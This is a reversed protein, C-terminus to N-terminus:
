EKSLASDESYFEFFRNVFLPPTTMDQNSFPLGSSYVGRPNWLPGTPMPPLAAKLRPEAPVAHPLSPSKRLSGFKPRFHVEVRKCVHSGSFFIAKFVIDVGKAM